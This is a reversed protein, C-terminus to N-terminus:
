FTRNIRQTVAISIRSYKVFNNLDVRRGRCAAVDREEDRERNLRDPRGWYMQDNIVFVSLKGYWFLYMFSKNWKMMDDVIELHSMCEWWDYFEFYLQLIIWWLCFFFRILVWSVVSFDYFIYKNKAFKCIPQSSITSPCCCPQWLM